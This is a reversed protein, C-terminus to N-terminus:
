YLRRQPIDSLRPLGDTEDSNFGSEFRSFAGILHERMVEEARDPDGSAVAETIARHERLTFEGTTDATYLRFAHFHCHTHEFATKVMTNGLAELIGGHFNQDHELLVTRIDGGDQIANEFRDIEDRLVRAPNSLRNTAVERIAWLEIVLRFEYLDRLEDQTILPAAWYGKSPGTRVLRDGELRRIAERVPTHSVNLGRAIADINLREGPAILNQLIQRRLVVYVESSASHM